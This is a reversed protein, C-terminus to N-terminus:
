ATVGMAKRGRMTQQLRAFAARAHAKNRALEDPTLVRPPPATAIPARPQVATGPADLWRKDRLFKGFTPVYRGGERQWEDSPIWAKIARAIEAQLPADPALADWDRRAANIGSRRPYGAAVTDFGPTGPGPTGPLTEVREGGSPPHPIITGQHNKSILTRKASRNLGNPPRTPDPQRVPEDPPGTRSASPDTIREPHREGDFSGPTIRYVTKRGNSRDAKIAGHEELWSIADIVASRGWDTRVCVTEISPWTYGHDNAMDALQMLVNKAVGPCKLRVCAASVIFSM